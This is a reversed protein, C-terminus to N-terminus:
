NFKLQYNCKFTWDTSKYIYDKPYKAKISQGEPIPENFVIKKSTPMIVTDQGFIVGNYTSHYSLISHLFSPTGSNTKVTVTNAENDIKVTNNCLGYGSMTIPLHYTGPSIKTICTPYREGYGSYSAKKTTIAETLDDNLISAFVTYGGEKKVYVINKGDILRPCDSSGVDIHTIQEESLVEGTLVDVKKKLTVTNSVPIFTNIAGEGINLGHFDFSNYSNCVPLMHEFQVDSSTIEGDVARYMKNNPTIIIDPNGEFLYGSLKLFTSLPSSANITKGIYKLSGDKMIYHLGDKLKSNADLYEASAILYNGVVRLYATATYSSSTSHFSLEPLDTIVEETDVSDKNLILNKVSFGSFYTRTTSSASLCPIDHLALTNDSDYKFITKDKSLKFIDYDTNKFTCAKQEGNVMVVPEYDIPCKFPLDFETTVGDGSGVTYEIEEHEDIKISDVYKYYGTAWMSTNRKMIGTKCKALLTDIFFNNNSTSGFSLEGRISMTDTDYSLQGDSKTPIFPGMRSVDKLKIAYGANLTTNSNTTLSFGNVILQLLPHKSEDNALKDFTIYAIATITMREVAGKHITINEGLADTFMAHTYLSGNSGIGIETIDTNALATELLTYQLTVEATNDEIKISQTATYSGLSKFLSKDNVSPVGSGSGLSITLPYGSGSCLQSLGYNTVTNYAKYERIDGKDNYVKVTFNNHLNIM